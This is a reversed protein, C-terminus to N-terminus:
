NLFIILQVQTPCDKEESKNRTRSGVGKKSQRKSGQGSKKIIYYDSKLYVKNLWSSSAVM